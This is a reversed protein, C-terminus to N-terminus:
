APSDHRYFAYASKMKRDIGKVLFGHPSQPPALPSVM